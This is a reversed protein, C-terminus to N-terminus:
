SKSQQHSRSSWSKQSPQNTTRIPLPKWFNYLHKKRKLNKKQPVCSFFKQKTNLSLTHKNSMTEQELENHHGLYHTLNRLRNWKRPRRECPSTPPNQQHLVNSSHKSEIIKTISSNLEQFILVYLVVIKGTTRHPHSVQNRVNLSPCPSLTNSFLTTLFTNPGFLISTIPPHFLTCM